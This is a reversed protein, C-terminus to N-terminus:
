EDEREKFEKMRAEWAERKAEPLLDVLKTRPGPPDDYLGMAESESVIEDIIAIQMKANHKRLEEVEKILDDYNGQYQNLYKCQPPNCCGEVGCAQCENCYVGDVDDLLQEAQQELAERCYNYTGDARKPTSVLRVFELLKQYDCQKQTM